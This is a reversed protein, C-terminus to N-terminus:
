ADKAYDTPKLGQNDKILISAGKQMLLKIIKEDGIEMAHHLPTKGM